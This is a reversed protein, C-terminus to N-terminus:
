AEGGWWTEQRTPHCRKGGLTLQFTQSVRLEKGGVLQLIRERWYGEQGCKKLESRSQAVLNGIPKRAELASRRAGSHAGVGHQRELMPMKRPAGM